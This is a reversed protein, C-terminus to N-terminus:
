ESRDLLAQEFYKLARDGRLIWFGPREGGNLSQDPQCDKWGCVYANKITGHGCCAHAVDPLYGLCPDPRYGKAFELGCASCFIGCLDSAVRAEIPAAFGPVQRGQVRPLGAERKSEFQRM